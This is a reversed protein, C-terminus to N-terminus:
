YILLCGNEQLRINRERVGLNGEISNVFEQYYCLPSDLNDFCDQAVSNLRTFGDIAYIKGCVDGPDAPDYNNRLIETREKYIEAVLRLRQMIKKLNCRYQDANEAFIAAYYMADKENYAPLYIVSGKEQKVFKDLQKEYFIIYDSKIEVASVDKNPSNRLIVLDVTTPDVGIFIFKIKYNSTDPIQNINTVLNVTLPEPMDLKVQRAFDAEAQNYYIIYRVDSSSVIIFNTIKFPMSWPLSWIILEKGKVLDPSFMIEAPTQRSVGTDKISYESIGTEEECIFNFETKPIDIVHITEDEGVGAGAFIEEISSILEASLKQESVAKQKFVITVFFLLILAGAILIFIWHFPIALQAKKNKM